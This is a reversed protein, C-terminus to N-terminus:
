NMKAYIPQFADNEGFFILFVFCINLTHQKKMLIGIELSNGGYEM